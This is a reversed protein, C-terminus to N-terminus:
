RPRSAADKQKKDADAKQQADSPTPEAAPADAAVPATDVPTQSPRTVVESAKEPLYLPGKQGCGPLACALMVLTAIKAISIASRHKM